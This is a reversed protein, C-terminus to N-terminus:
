FGCLELRNKIIESDSLDEAWHTGTLDAADPSFDYFDDYFDDEPEITNKRALSFVAQFWEGNPSLNIATPHLRYVAGYIKDINPWFVVLDGPQDESIRFRIVGDERVDYINGILCGLVDEQYIDIGMSKMLTQYRYDPQDPLFARQVGGRKRFLHDGLHLELGCYTSTHGFQTHYAITHGTSKGPVGRLAYFANKPETKDRM